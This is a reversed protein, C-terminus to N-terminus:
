SRSPFIGQLAICFSITLYPPLNSHPQNGGAAALASSSMSGTQAPDFALQNGNAWFNGAATTVLGTTTQSALLNHSHPSMESQILTHNEEGAKQGINYNSLGPGQGFHNPVRGLLDPLAFNTQGNGGYQTGLLAFLAQNQNIPLLQGSCSAWGKPPFSFSFMRIEGLFPSAM